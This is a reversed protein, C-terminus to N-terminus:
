DYFEKEWSLNEHEIDFIKKMKQYTMLMREYMKYDRNAKEIAITMALAYLINLAEENEIFAKKFKELEKSEDNIM